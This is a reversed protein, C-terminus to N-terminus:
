HRKDRDSGGRWFYWKRDSQKEAVERSERAALEGAAAYWSLVSVGEALLKLKEIELHEKAEQLQKREREFAVRDLNLLRLKKRYLEDLRLHKREDEMTSRENLRQKIVSKINHIMQLPNLNRRLSKSNGDVAAMKEDNHYLARVSTLCIGVWRVIFEFSRNIADMARALM